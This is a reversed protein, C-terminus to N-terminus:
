GLIKLALLAFIKSAAVVQDLEIYEDASHAVRLEGPGMMITSIGGQNVFTEMDSTASYGLVEVKRGLVEEATEKSLSVILEESNIIVGKRSVIVKLETKLRPDEKSLRRLINEIEIKVDEPNEEPLIRRDVTISCRDPVINTISGGIITGM